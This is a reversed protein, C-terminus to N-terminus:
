KTETVNAVAVKAEAFSQISKGVFASGLICGVLVASASLDRAWIVCLVAIACATLTCLLQCVRMMSVDGSCSFMKKIM